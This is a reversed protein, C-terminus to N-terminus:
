NSIDTSTIANAAHSTAMAGVEAATYSPKNTAKAWAPVTPDTETYSTLYGADNNFESVNTPVTPISLSVVGTQGNVSTVPATYTSPLAGVEAATYSPKSAAKAWDAIDSTQLYSSLDVSTTGILEWTNNIYMYEDHVSSNVAQPVFYITHDDINETPLASVVAVEFSNIDGIATNIATQVQSSTQYGAGELDSVRGALAADNYQTLGDLKTKDAVSMVGPHDTTAYFATNDYNIGGSEGTIIQLLRQGTILRGVTNNTGM